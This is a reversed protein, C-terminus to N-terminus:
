ILSLLHIIEDHSKWTTWAVDKTFHECENTSTWDHKALIVDSHFSMPNLLGSWAKNPTVFIVSTFVIKNMPLSPNWLPSSLVLLLFGCKTVPVYKIDWQRRLEYLDPFWGQKIGGHSVGTFCRRRLDLNPMNLKAEYRAKVVLYHNTISSKWASNCPWILNPSKFKRWGAM